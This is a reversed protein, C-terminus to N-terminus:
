RHLFRAPHIADRALQSLLGPENCMEGALVEGLLPALTLGRAGLGGIVYIGAHAPPPANPNAARGHALDAYQALWAEADPLLGAIPARDPTTARESARSRLSSEDVSAAIEPALERLAALNRSRADLMEPAAQKDFTAGFLVGGDFPAVYSGRTLAHDLAPGKGWEIQGYSIAIPLFSAPEFATLAAGCALVVADARLLARGDPALVIWGDGDRDLRQVPSEFIVQAGDLMRAIARQPMVVGARAHFAAGNPLQSFWDAPLPPDNLLDDLAETGDSSARQEVGCAKIVSLAEYLAIANLYAALHVESLAGGRDLRPMVLGAPNGSAGAGLERAAELVVVEVGRRVLAQAVSAGAIGAGLVAVRKPNCGAYPYIPAVPPPAGAEVFRAELRERKKGFGPKKEVAFGAAELGRRVDGAVTFTAARAGPASLRAIQQFLAPSWMEPNRAPAFGDLFWADFSGTLGALVKEAEGTFLTLSLGDEPFWLRQPSYARVPWNALLKESLESVESFNSLVREADARALPFSEITSIHLQAHPIRTKKWASWLALINLGSGFGLECLAFRDRNQWLEPLGTGALFVAEAEALGGDKSFYIDGFAAARLSSGDESWELDPAPPLRPMLCGLRLRAAREPPECRFRVDFRLNRPRRPRLKPRRRLAM